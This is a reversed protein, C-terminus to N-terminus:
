EDYAKQCFPCDNDYAVDDLTYEVAAKIQERDNLASYIPNRKIEKLVEDLVEDDSFSGTNYWYDDHADCHAIAGIEEMIDHVNDRYQQIAEVGSSLIVFEKAAANLVSSFVSGASLLNSEIKERNVSSTIAGAMLQLAKSMGAPLKPSDSSPITVTDIQDLCSEFAPKLEAIITTADEFEDKTMRKAHAVQNRYGYLKKWKSSLDEVKIKDSFYRDWNSKAILDDLLGDVKETAESNQNNESLLSQMKQIANQDLTKLTYPSFFFWSLQIFDAYYLQDGILENQSKENKEITKNISDKVDSPVNSHFWDSGNTNIMLRYIIKRLLNEIEIIQPYLEKTYYMSVDDWITNIIFQAGYQSNIRRLLIDFDGLKNAITNSDEESSIQFYFVIEPKNKRKKEKEINKSSLKINFMTKEFRLTDDSFTIRSNSSLLSKFQEITQCFDNQTKILMYEIRM